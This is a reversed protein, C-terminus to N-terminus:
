VGVWWGLCLIRCFEPEQLDEVIRLIQESSLPSPWFDLQTPVSTQSTKTSLLPPGFLAALGLLIIFLSLFLPLPRLLPLKLRLQKWRILFSPLFPIQRFSFILLIRHYFQRCACGMIWVELSFYIYEYSCIYVFFVLWNWIKNRREKKMELNKSRKNLFFFELIRLHCTGTRKGRVPCYSITLVLKKLPDEM